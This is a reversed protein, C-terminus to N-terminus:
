NGKIRRVQRKAMAVTNKRSKYDSATNAFVTIEKEGQLTWRVVQHGGKTLGVHDITAGAARLLALVEERTECRRAM